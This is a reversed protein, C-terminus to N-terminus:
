INQSILIDSIYQDSIRGQILSRTQHHHHHHQQELRIIESLRKEEAAMQNLINKMITRLYLLLIKIRIQEHLLDM